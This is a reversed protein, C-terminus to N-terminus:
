GPCPWCFTPSATTAPSCRTGRAAQWLTYLGVLPLMSLTELWLGSVADVPVQKRVLGYLGFTGGSVAVGLAPQRPGRVRQGGGGRGARRRGVGQRQPAGQAGADGAGCEGAAGPFLGPQRRDGAAPGGGVSVWGTPGWWGRPRPSACCRAPGCAAGVQSWGRRAALILTVVLCAWLARNCLVDAPSV